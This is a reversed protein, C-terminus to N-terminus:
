GATTSAKAFPYRQWTVYALQALIFWSWLQESVAFPVAIHANRLLPGIHALVSLLQAATTWIPWFRDSKIMIAVFIVLMIGDIVFIGPESGQWLESTQEILVASLLSGLIVTTAVVKASPDGRLLAYGCSGAMLLAFVLVM